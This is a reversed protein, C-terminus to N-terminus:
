VDELNLSVAAGNEPDKEQQDSRERQRKKIYKIVLFVALPGGVSLAGSFWGGMFTGASHNCKPECFPVYIDAATRHKIVDQTVVCYFRNTTTRTVTTILTVSYRKDRESVQPEEAPLVKGDSDQWQVKPQPFAGRVECKLFVKHETATLITVCPEQAAGPIINSRDKFTGGILLQIKFIQAQPQIRPFVCSYTGSDIVTTNQIIISANGFELQGPFHSVRGIFQQDQGTRGNNYHIGADYLFVEKQDDKKWDFVTQVINKRTSLSCPLVADQGEKSIVTVVSQDNAHGVIAASLSLLCLISWVTNNLM